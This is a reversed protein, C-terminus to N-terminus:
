GCRALASKPPQSGTVAYGLKQAIPHLADRSKEGEVWIIETADGIEDVGYLPLDACAIGGLGSKGGREWRFTKKGNNEVRVHEVPEGDIETILYRTEGIPHRGSGNKKVLTIPKTPMMAEGHTQGCKCPGHMRHAYTGSKEQPLPGALEDRTCHAYLGDSGLFGWCRVGKGQPLRDYGGCIPCPNRKSFRQAPEVTRQTM